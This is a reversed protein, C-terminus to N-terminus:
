EGKRNRGVTPKKGGSYMNRAKRFEAYKQLEKLDEPHLDKATRLLASVKNDTEIEESPFFEKISVGFFRSLVELDDIKPRYSGTEWRSVTNTAVNIAKALANQSIGEGGYSSRLDKIREGVYQKINM